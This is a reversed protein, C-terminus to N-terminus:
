IDNSLQFYKKQMTRTVTWNLHWLLEDIFVLNMDYHHMVNTRHPSRCIYGNSYMPTGWEKLSRSLNAAPDQMAPKTVPKDTIQSAAYGNFHTRAREHMGMLDALYAARWGTLPMRWGIAGHLYGPSEWVADEAGSFIGGLTNIYPDPTEIKIRDAIFSRREVGKEFEDM